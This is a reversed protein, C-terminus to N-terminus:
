LGVLFGFLLAPARRGAVEARVKLDSTRQRGALLRSSVYSHVAAFLFTAAVSVWPDAVDAALGLGVWCFALGWWYWWPMGIQDIVRRRAQEVGHLALRAEAETPSNTM